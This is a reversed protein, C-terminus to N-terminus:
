DEAGLLRTIARRAAEVRPRLEPDAARWAWAANEYGQIAEAKKGLQDQLIALQYEVYPDNFLGFHEHMLSELYMSAQEPRDLERTLTALWYRITGNWAFLYDFDLYDLTMVKQRSSELLAMAEEPRGRRWYGYGVLADAAGDFLRGRVSDGAARGVGATERLRGIASSHDAWRGRDAAYAGALFWTMTDSASHSLAEELGAKSVALDGLLIHRKYLLFLAERKFDVTM